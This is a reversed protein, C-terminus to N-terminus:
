KIYMLTLLSMRREKAEFAREVIVPTSRQGSTDAFLSRMLRLDRRRASERLYNKGSVLFEHLRASYKSQSASDNLHKKSLCLARRLLVDRLLSPSLPIYHCHCQSQSLSKLHVVTALSFQIEREREGGTLTAINRRKEPQLM